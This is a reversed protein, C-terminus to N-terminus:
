YESYMFYLITRTVNTTKESTEEHVKLATETHTINEM